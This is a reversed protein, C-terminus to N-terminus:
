RTIAIAKFSEGGAKGSILGVGPAYWKTERGDSLQSTERVQLAGLFRGAPVTVRRNTGTVTVTEDVLPLLDEPKFTDGLEPNAPMIVGPFGANGTEPPDTPETPGGVLWSGDHAVVEGDEYIDVTEGFYYVTGDDAQAFYNQSIEAIRGSEFETETLIRTEVGVGNLLFTRTTAPYTDVFAIKKGDSVGTFVKMRGPVVPYFPNTINLPSTFVPPTVPPAAHAVLASGALPLTLASMLISITKM